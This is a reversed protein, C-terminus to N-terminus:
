GAVGGITVNAGTNLLKANYWAYADYLNNVNVRDGVSQIVFEQEGDPMFQFTKGIVPESKYDLPDSGDSIKAVGIKEALDGASWVEDDGPLVEDVGILFALADMWQKFGLGTVAVAPSTGSVVRSLAGATIKENLLAQVAARLTKTGGYLVAKGSYRRVSNLADQAQTLFKAADFTIASAKGLTLAAIAAERAKMVSRKAFKAGVMDAKEIGGMTKAEDPSVRGRKCAEAATYTTSSNAIQTADPGSGTSRNTQAAVDDTVTAYYITGSKESVPVVPLIRGGIYGEPQNVPIAALDPRESTQTYFKDHM